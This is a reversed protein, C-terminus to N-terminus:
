KSPENQVWTTHECLKAPTAGPPAGLASAVSNAGSALRRLGELCRVFGPPRLRDGLLAKRSSVHKQHFERASAKPWTLAFIAPKGACLIKLRRDGEVTGSEAPRFLGADM